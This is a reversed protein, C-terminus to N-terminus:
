VDGSNQMEQLTKLIERLLDLTQERWRAEDARDLEASAQESGPQPIQGPQGDGGVAIKKAIDGLNEFRRELDDLEKHVASMDPEVRLKGVGIVHEPANQEM